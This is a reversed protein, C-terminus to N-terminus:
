FSTLTRSSLTRLHSNQTKNSNQSLRAIQALYVLLMMFLKL